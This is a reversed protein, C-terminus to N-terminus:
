YRSNKFHNEIFQAHSSVVYLHVINNLIKYIISCQMHEFYSNFMLDYISHKKKYISDEESLKFKIQLGFLKCQELVEQTNHSIFRNCGEPKLVIYASM